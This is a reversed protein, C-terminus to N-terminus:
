EVTNITETPIINTKNESQYKQFCELHVYNGDSKYESLPIAAEIMENCIKCKVSINEEEPFKKKNAELDKNLGLLGYGIIDGYPSESFADKRTAIRKLKDFIRVVCLMDGYAEPPVGNPYLLRLFEGAQDFSNGYAKQKETVLDAIDKALEQYNKMIKTRGDM